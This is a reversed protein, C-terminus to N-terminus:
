RVTEGPSKPPKARGLVRRLWGKGMADFKRWEAPTLRVSRPVTREDPPLEPRGRARKEEETM